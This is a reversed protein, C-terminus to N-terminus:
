NFLEFYTNFAGQHEVLQARLGRVKQLYVRFEKKKEAGLIRDIHAFFRLALARRQEINSQDAKTKISEVAFHVRLGYHDSLPKRPTGGLNISGDFPKLQTADGGINSFFIYDLVHDGALWGLPNSECYTCVGKPYTGGLTEVLSDRVGLLLMIVARELSNEDGNFDGSLLLKLDTHALRWDLLDLIQTLRVASNTPHLHTNVFYFDEDIGTLSAKVVHYAKKVNFAGRVLDLVNGESNVKFDHTETGKIDAMMLSMVGIKELRNPASINYYRRLSSEIMDIQPSNWVEQLHVITCIPKAYLEAMLGQTREEMHFAYLPGYANFNQMCFRPIGPDAIWFREAKASVMTLLLSAMLIMQKIFM